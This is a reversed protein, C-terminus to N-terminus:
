SPVRQEVLWAQFMLITWLHHQWNRRGDLHEAWMRRIPESRFYGERQLREEGLLDEAWDRLPGRLWDDLPIGFGMKPRESLEPPIYRDLVRRLLWKSEGNRIKMHLPLRWALEVVRPDLFPIRTELSNAMAARDVKVLIDDPLYSQTDMAMMWHELSDTPPWRTEDSLLTLPERAGIVITTPDDWHSVLRRYYDHGDTAQLARALKHAKDGPTAIRLPRPLVPRVRRFLSDWATPSLGTLVAASGSRLPRPLRGAQSWVRRASLYRNYGGFIEDGADGSLAVRVDRSALESVLFTPIQSSDGFPESYISALKPIVDLAHSAQVVLETHDTGLMASVARAQSAEDYEPDDSGITFTRVPRASNAQMLAVVTSSDIGGSLFAGLPVDSMLQSNVALLLVEQMREIAEDDSGTFPDARGAEIVSDLDWYSEASSLDAGPASITIFHGPELKRIGRFISYPVPIANHRLLLALADRDVEARFSPHAQLAQLESGFLLTDGQWGFYLPKEGMRDRALTLSREQRDWLAFAFMGISAELTRRVGWASVCALLTQTDSHGNWSPAEGAKELEARLDLHNYLEGNYTIVYRGNPSVQPQHGADSLDVIALRRHGLMVEGREDVWTGGSDPGRRELTATMGAVISESIPEGGGPTFAGCIGCM